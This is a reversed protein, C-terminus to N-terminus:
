WIETWLPTEAAPQREHVLAALDAAAAPRKVAKCQAAIHACGPQDLGCVASPFPLNAASMWRAFLDGSGDEIFVYFREQEREVYVDPQVAEQPPSAVLAQYGRLRAQFAFALVSLVREAQGPAAPDDLHLLRRFRQIEPEIAQWGLLRSLDLGSATLQLVVLSTELPRRMELRHFSVLGVQVLYDVAQRIATTRRDVNAALALLQEIEPRACLGTSALLYLTITQRTWREASVDKFLRIYPDPIPPTKWDRLTILL